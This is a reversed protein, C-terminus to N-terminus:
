IFKKKTKFYKIFFYLIFPFYFRSLFNLWHFHLFNVNYVIFVMSFIFPIFRNKLFENALLFCGFAGFFLSLIIFLNYSQELNFGMLRFLKFFISIGFLPHTRVLSYAEPYFIPLHYIDSINTSLSFNIISLINQVDIHYGFPVKDSFNFFISPYLLFIM